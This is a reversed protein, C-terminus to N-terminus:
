AVAEVRADISRAGLARLPNDTRIARTAAEGFLAPLPAAYPRDSGLAVVDIGLVRILADVGQAGYSSTEVFVDRDVVGADGGRAALREHQLPALGAGAAFVLRLTPHQARGGAAHWGWWAAQLQAVYGVVPAWWAPAEDVATPGPHVFVPKGAAEAVALVDGVADWGSPTAVQTAALQVGVFPGALLAALADLDPQHTPVSAWAAFHGPLAAAGAHWADLAAGAEERPLSELGLPASLSVCALGTGAARDLDIRREVDHDAPRVDYPAEGETHLTWGRLYPARTRRRLLELLPEPWLHQHLDIASVTERM